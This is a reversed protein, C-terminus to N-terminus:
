GLLVSFVISLFHQGERVTGPYFRKEMVELALSASTMEGGFFDGGLLRSAVM